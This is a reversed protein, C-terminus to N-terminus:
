YIFDFIEIEELHFIEEGEDTKDFYYQQVKEHAQDTDDAQVVHSFNCHNRHITYYKGQSEVVVKGVATFYKVM